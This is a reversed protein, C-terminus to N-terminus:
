RRQRTMSSNRTLRSCGSPACTTACRCRTAASSALRCPGLLSTCVRRSNLWACPSTMIPGLDEAAIAAARTAVTDARVPPAAALYTHPHTELLASVVFQDLADALLAAPRGDTVAVLQEVVGIVARWRARDAPMAPSVLAFGASGTSRPM